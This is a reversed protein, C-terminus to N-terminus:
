KIENEIQKLKMKRLLKEDETEWKSCNGNEEFRWHYEVNKTCIMLEYDSEHHKCTWCEKFKPNFSCEDEHKKM